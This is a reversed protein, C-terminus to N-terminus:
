MMFVFKEAKPLHSDLEKIEHMSYTIAMVSVMIVYVISNYHLM